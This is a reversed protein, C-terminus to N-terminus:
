RRVRPLDSAEEPMDETRNWLRKSMYPCRGEKQETASRGSGSCCGAGGGGGGGGCVRGGFRRGVGWWWVCVYVSRSMNTLWPCLRSHRKRQAPLLTTLVWKIVPESPECQNHEKKDNQQKPPQLKWRIFNAWTDASSAACNRWAVHTVGGRKIHTCHRPLRGRNEPVVRRRKGTFIFRLSGSTQARLTIWRRANRVRPIWVLIPTHQTAEFHGPRTCIGSSILRGIQAARVCVYTAKQLLVLLRM